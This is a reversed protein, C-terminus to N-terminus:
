MCGCGLLLQNSNLKRTTFEHGKGRRYKQLPGITDFSALYQFGSFVLHSLKCPPCTSNKKFSERTTKM